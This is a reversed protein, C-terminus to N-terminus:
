ITFKSTSHYSLPNLHEKVAGKETGRGLIKTPVGEMKSDVLRPLNERAAHTNSTTSFELSLLLDWLLFKALDILIPTGASNAYSIEFWIKCTSWPRLLHPNILKWEKKIATYKVRKTM